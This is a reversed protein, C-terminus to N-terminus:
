QVEESKAVLYEALPQKVAAVVLVMFPTLDGTQATELTDYYLLRDERRLISIPYGYRM